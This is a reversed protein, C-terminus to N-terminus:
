AIPPPLEPPTSHRRPWWQPSTLCAAVVLAYFVWSVAHYRRHEINKWDAAPWKKQFWLRVTSHWTEPVWAPLSQECAGEYMEDITKRDEESRVHQKLEDRHQATMVGIFTLRGGTSGLAPKFVVLERLEPSLEHGVVWDAIPKRSILWEDEWRSTLSLHQSRVFYGAVERDGLMMEGATLALIGAGLYVIWNFRNMLRAIYSSCTMIIGISVVLGFLLIVANGHAAGAVALMNDLSMVFDAVIIMRIAALASKDANGPTVAHEDEDWLLKCAIWALVVGGILRLTPVMLLFAMIMTFIIRLGIAAGGGWWIARKRQHEPLKHAAMAIVVANDGSLVIDILIIKLVALLDFDM